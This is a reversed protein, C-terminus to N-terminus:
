REVAVVLMEEGVRLVRLSGSVEESKKKEAWIKKM